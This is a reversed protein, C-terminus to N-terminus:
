LSDLIKRLQRLSLDRGSNAPMAELREIEQELKHRRRVLAKASQEAYERRWEGLNKRLALWAKQNRKPPVAIKTGICVM